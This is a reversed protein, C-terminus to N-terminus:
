APVIAAVPIVESIRTNSALYAYVCRRGSEIAEPRVLVVSGAPVRKAHPGAHFTFDRTTTAALHQDTNM